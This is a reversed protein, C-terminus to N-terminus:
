DRSGGTHIAIGRGPTIEMPYVIDEHSSGKYKEISIFRKIGTDDRLRHLRVEGRAIHTEPPLQGGEPVDATLLSTVKSESLFRMFSQTAAGAEFDKMCFYRLATMSDIVLREVPHRQFIVKLLNQLSHISVEKSEFEPTKRIGPPLDGFAIPEEESSIEMIPTPEFRRVDSTADLVMMKSVDWGLGEMNDRVENPPEELTVYLVHDGARLGELLFQISLTTKGSGPPGSVIYPRGAILGGHLMQDLGRIGTPVKKTM